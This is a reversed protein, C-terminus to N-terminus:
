LEKIRKHIEILAQVDNWASHAEYEIGFYAAITVQKSNEASIKGAKILRRSLTMTDEAKAKLAEFCNELEHKDSRKRLVTLDFSKVNHGVITINEFQSMFDILRTLVEKEPRENAVQDDTIGTLETIIYPIGVSPKCYKHFSAITEDTGKNIVVAAIELIENDYPPMWGLTEIDIYVYVDKSAEKFDITSM